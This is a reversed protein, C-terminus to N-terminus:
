LVYAYIYDDMVYGGGIDFVKNDICKFGAKTYAKIANSNGKNVTLYVSCFGKDRAYDLVHKLAEQGIGKGQTNPLIYLKNLKLKKSEPTIAIFGITQKDWEIFEWVVGQDLEKLITEPAYMWSLMYEIQEASIMNAYSITWIERALHQISEVDKTTVKRFTLM